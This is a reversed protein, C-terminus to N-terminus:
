RVYRQIGREFPPVNQKELTQRATPQETLEDNGWAMHLPYMVQLELVSRRRFKWISLFYDKVGRNDWNIYNLLDFTLSVKM